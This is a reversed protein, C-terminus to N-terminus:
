PKIYKIIDTIKELIYDAGAKKLDDETGIGSLVGITYIKAKKGAMIDYPHDGIILFKDPEYNYHEIIKEIGEPSPKPEMVDERTLIMQFVDNLGNRSLLIKTSKKGSRTFATLKYGHNRLKEILVIVNDFLRSNKAADIHTQEIINNIDEKIKNLDSDPYKNSIIEIAKNVKELVPKFHMKINYNQSFYDHIKDRMLEWDADMELITGELDLIIVKVKKLLNKLTDDITLKKEEM